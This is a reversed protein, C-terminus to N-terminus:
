GNDKREGAKYCIVPGNLTKPNIGDHPLRVKTSELRVLNGSEESYDDSLVGTGAVRGNHFSSSTYLKGIQDMRSM